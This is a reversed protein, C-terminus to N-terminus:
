CKSTNQIKFYIFFHECVNKCVYTTLRARYLTWRFDDSHGNDACVEKNCRRTDHRCLAARKHTMRPSDTMQSHAFDRCRTRCSWRAFFEGLRTTRTNIRSLKETGALIRRQIYIIGLGFQGRPAKSFKGRFPLRSSLSFLRRLKRM